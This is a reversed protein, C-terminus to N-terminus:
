GSRGRIVVDGLVKSQWCYFSSSGVERRSLEGVTEKRRADSWRISSALRISNDIIMSFKLNIKNRFKLFVDDGRTLDFGAKHIYDVSIIFRDGYLMSQSLTLVWGGTLDSRNKPWIKACEDFLLPIRGTKKGNIRGRTNIPALDTIEKVGDAVLLKQFNTPSKNKSIGVYTWRWFIDCLGLTDPTGLRMTLKLSTVGAFEKIPLTERRGHAILWLNMGESEGRIRGNNLPPQRSETTEVARKISNAFGWGQIANKFNADDGFRLESTSARGTPGAAALEHLIEAVLLQDSPSLSARRGRGGRRVSIARFLIGIEESDGRRRSLEAFLYELGLRTDYSTGITADSNLPAAVRMLAKPMPDTGDFSVLGGKGNASVALFHNRVDQAYELAQRSEEAVSLTGADTIGLARDGTNLNMFINRDFFNRVKSKHINAQLEFTTIPLVSVGPADCTTRHLRPVMKLELLLKLDYLKSMRRVRETADIEELFHIVIDLDSSQADFQEGGEYIASGFLYADCLMEAKLQATWEKCLDIAVAAEPTWSAM